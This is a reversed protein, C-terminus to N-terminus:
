IENKNKNGKCKLIHGYSEFRKKKLFYLINKSSYVDKRTVTFRLIIKILIYEISLVYILM